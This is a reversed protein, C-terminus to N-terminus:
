VSVCMCLYTELASRVMQWLQLVNDEAVSAIVWDDNESWSFEAVKDTHGGHIFQLVSRLSKAVSVLGYEAHLCSAFPFCLCTRPCSLLGVSLSVSLSM